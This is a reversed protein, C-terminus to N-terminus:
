TAEEYVLVWVDGGATSELVLEVSGSPIDAITVPVGPPMCPSGTGSANHAVTTPETSAGVPRFVFFVARNRAPDASITVRTAPTRTAPIPVAASVTDATLHRQYSLITGFVAAM